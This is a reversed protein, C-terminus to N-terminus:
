TIAQEIPRSIAVLVVTIKDCGVFDAWPLAPSPPPLRQLLYPLLDM